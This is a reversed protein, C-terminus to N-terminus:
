EQLQQLRDGAPNDNWGTEQGTGRRRVFRCSSGDLCDLEGFRQRLMGSFLDPDRRRQNLAPVAAAM